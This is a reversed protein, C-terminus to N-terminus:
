VTDNLLIYLVSSVNFMGKVIGALATLLKDGQEINKVPQLETMVLIEVDRLKYPISIPEFFSALRMQTAIADQPLKESHHREPLHKRIHEHDSHKKIFDHIDSLRKGEAIRGRPKFSIKLVLLHAVTNWAEVNSTVRVVCTGRGIIAHQRFIVEGLNLTANVDGCRLSSSALYSLKLLEVEKCSAPIEPAPLQVADM